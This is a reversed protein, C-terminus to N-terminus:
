IGIAIEFLRSYLIAAICSTHLSAGEIVQFLSFESEFFIYSILISVSRISSVCGICLIHVQIELSIFSRDFSEVSSRLAKRNFIECPMSLLAPSSAFKSVKFVPLGMFSDVKIPLVLFEQIDPANRGAHKGGGLVNGLPHPLVGDGRGSLKSFFPISLSAAAAKAAALSIAICTNGGLKSFDKTGDLEHLLNDVIETEASDIGVM